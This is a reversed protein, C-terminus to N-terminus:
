AYYKRSRPHCPPSAAICARANGSLRKNKELLARYTPHDKKFLQSVEAERFTLANLQNEVNVVQDLVSKAELSLDVSDSQERYANLRAEAEDLERSIKPLQDQLFTLSRSDKAEQRAINQSLFNEAITNLVTATKGPDDGTLTLAIM